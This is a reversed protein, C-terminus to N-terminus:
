NQKILTLETENVGMPDYGRIESVVYVDSDFIVNAGKKLLTYEEATLYCNVIIYNTDLSPNINFYRRLLTGEKDKYSLEIGNRENKTDYIKAIKGYDGADNQCNVNVTFGTDNGRFWYRIPLGKGDVKMSEEYDYGDIMYSFKSIVPITITGLETNNDDLVKFTDYYTYSHKLDVTEDKADDFTSIVVKSTGYDGYQAWDPYNLREAPVTTEFGWEETDIKYNVKMSAPYEILASEVDSNIVRDDINIAYRQRDDLKQKNMYVVNGENYVSLNFQKVFDQIFDSVKTEKNMFEGLQLDRSFESPSDWGRNKYTMEEVTGPSYASIDVQVNVDFDYFFNGRDNEWNRAVAKLVLIDNKQLECIMEITGSLIDNSVTATCGTSDQLTNQNYQTKTWVLNGSQQGQETVQYYGTQNYKAGYKDAVSPNWSYGNKIVAPTGNSMSSIGCIFGSNVLPDYCLLENERPMYGKDANYGRLGGFQRASTSRTGGFTGGSVTTTRYGPRRRGGDDITSAYGHTGTNRGGGFGSSTTTLSKSPIRSGKCAEHPYATQWVAKTDSRGYRRSWQHIGHILECNDTNRVLQIEIPMDEQLDNTITIDAQKYEFGDYLDFYWEKVTASQNAVLKTNSVQMKIKYLGDAPIVICSDDNDFMYTLTGGGANRVTKKTNSSAWIDYIQVSPINWNDGQADYPFELDHQLSNAWVSTQGTNNDKYTSFEASISCSGMPYAGLNYVPKQEDAINTSMYLNTIVEDNLVDGSLTFGKQEFYRKVVDILRPSPNFSEHFWQNWKDLQFKSTYFNYDYQTSSPSKQFAGYSVLPFIVSPNAEIMLQGSYDNSDPVIIKGSQTALAENYANISGAGNYPVTLDLENMKMDGFIDDISNIKINVLNVNYFGKQISSIRLNGSFILKGDAYVECNYYKKFKNLKALENAYEFIKNNNPTTPLNFSFSYEAQKRSIETPDYVTNNIRLNISSRNLIDVRQGNVLIDLTANSQLM